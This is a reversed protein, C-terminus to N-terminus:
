PVEAPTSSSSQIEVRFRARRQAYDQERMRTAQAVRWHDVVADRVEELNPTQAPVLESLRVLHIGYASAVPGAWTGEPLEVLKEFFGHGFVGDVATASSLRLKAPLLTHEGMEGVSTEPSAHLVSLAQELSEPNPSTGFFIQEFALGPLSAFEKKNDAFHSELEDATPERLYSGTDMLFEMKQRLRRRVVADNSDLGLELAGRYYVEERIHEEILQELESESPLHHWVSQYEAALQEIRATSVVILDAPNQRQEELMAYLLFILAGIISFHLLPERLLRLSIAKIM